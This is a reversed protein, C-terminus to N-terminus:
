ERTDVAVLEVDFVLNAYPPIPGNRYPGYALQWPIVLKRKGGERMGALGEDWGPIVQGVGLVFGIPDGGRSTDFETGDALWGTYHAYVTLGAKATDGTGVVLDQTYLGTSSKTMKSLDIGLEPAFETEEISVPKPGVYEKTDLCAAAALALALGLLPFAIRKM